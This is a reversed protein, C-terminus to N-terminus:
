LNVVFSHRLQQIPRKYTHTYIIFTPCKTHFTRIILIQWNHPPFLPTSDTPRASSEAHKRKVNLFTSYKIM